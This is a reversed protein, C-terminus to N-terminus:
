SQAATRAIANRARDMCSKKPPPLPIEESGHHRADKDWTEEIKRFKESVRLKMHALSTTPSRSAKEAAKRALADVRENVPTGTNGKARAIEATQYQQPLRSVM